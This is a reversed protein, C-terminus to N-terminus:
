EASPKDMSVSRALPLVGNQLDINVRSEPKGLLLESELSVSDIPTIRTWQGDDM